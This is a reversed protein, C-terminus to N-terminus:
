ARERLGVVVAVVTAAGCVGVEDMPESSLWWDAAPWVTRVRSQSFM